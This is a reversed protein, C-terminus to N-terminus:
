VVDMLEDVAYLAPVRALAASLRRVTGVALLHGCLAHSITPESLGALEALRKSTLGRATM